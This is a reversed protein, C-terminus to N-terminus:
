HLKSSTKVYNICLDKSGIASASKNKRKNLVAKRIAIVDELLIPFQSKITVGGKNFEM